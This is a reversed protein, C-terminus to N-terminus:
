PQRCAAWRISSLSSAGTGSPRRPFGSDLCIAFLEDWECCILRSGLDAAWEMDKDAAASTMLLNLDQRVEEDPVGLTYLGDAYDKITLYGTQYLMIGIPKLNALDTVDFARATRQPRPAVAM